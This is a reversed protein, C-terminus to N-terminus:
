LRALLDRAGAPGDVVIDVADLLESPAEESRVGVRVATVGERALADLARFAPLDGVDDGIFCVAALGVTLDRLATGKDVEIPPHLEFSMRAPRVSLGSREALQQAFAHVEARVEPNGRFHLTLSLGKHEVRLEEPGAAHAVEFVEDIVPRWLGADPHDVFVGDRVIELGYLGSLVVPSPLWTRLFSVPRGSLVAVVAYRAALGELLEPVGELPRADTPEDVIEALTGDFDTLIGTQEPVARLAELQDHVPGSV